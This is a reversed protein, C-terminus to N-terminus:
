AAAAKRARRRVLIGGCVDWRGVGPRRGFSAGTQRAWHVLSGIGVGGRALFTGWKAECAGPEYKDAAGSSWHDWAALMEAGSDVSHLAMGIRLWMDYHAGADLAALCELAVDRDTSLGGRRRRYIALPLGEAQPTPTPPKPIFAAASPVTALIARVAEAGGIWAGAGDWVRSWHADTHHRGPLRLWNGYKGEGIAPQKPFIEPAASLGHTVYDSVLGRVFSYVESTARPADLIGLLHYGGRGNSDTLLPTFGLSTLKDFWHVAATFNTGSDAGGGHYDIDICFWRSTNQPSTTHLGILDGVDRGAFHREIVEITLLVAGRLERPPRTESKDVAM